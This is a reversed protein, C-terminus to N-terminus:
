GAHRALIERALALTRVDLRDDRDGPATVQLLGDRGLWKVIARCGAEVDHHDVRALNDRAWSEVREAWARHRDEFFPWALHNPMDHVRAAGCVGSMVAFAPIWIFRQSRRTPAPDGAVRPRASM